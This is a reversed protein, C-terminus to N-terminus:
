FPVTRSCPMGEQGFTLFYFLIFYAGRCEGVTPSIVGNQRSYIITPSGNRNSLHLTQSVDLQHAQFEVMNRKYWIVYLLISIPCLLDSILLPNQQARELMLGLWQIIDQIVNLQIFHSHSNFLWETIINTCNPISM